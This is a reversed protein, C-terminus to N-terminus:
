FPYKKTTIKHVVAFELPIPRPHCKKKHHSQWLLFLFNTRWFSSISVTLCLLSFCIPRSFSKIAAASLGHIFIWIIRIVFSTLCYGFWFRRMLYILTPNRPRCFKNSALWFSTMRRPGARMLGNIIDAASPAAFILHFVGAFLIIGISYSSPRCFSVPLSFFLSLFHSVFSMDFHLLIKINHLPELWVFYWVRIIIIIRIASIARLVYISNHSNQVM